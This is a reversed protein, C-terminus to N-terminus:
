FADVGQLENDKIDCQSLNVGTDNIIIGSGLESSSMDCKTMTVAFKQDIWQHVSEFAVNTLQNKSLECTKFDCSNLALNQICVGHGENKM